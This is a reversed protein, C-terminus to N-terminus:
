YAVVAKDTAQLSWGVDEGMEEFEAELVAAPVGAAICAQYSTDSGDFIVHSWAHADDSEELQASM